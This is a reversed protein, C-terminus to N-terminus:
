PGMSHMVQIIAPGVVRQGPMLAEGRFQPTDLAGCEGALFGVRERM